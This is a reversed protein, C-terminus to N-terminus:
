GPRAPPACPHAATWPTGSRTPLASAKSPWPPAGRQPKGAVLNADTQTLGVRSCRRQELTRQLSGRRLSQLVRGPCRSEDEFATRGQRITSRWNSGCRRRNSRVLRSRRYRREPIRHRRKRFCVAVDTTAAKVIRETEVSPAIRSRNPSGPSDAFPTSMAPTSSTPRPGKAPGTTAPATTRSGTRRILPRLSELSSPACSRSSNAASIRSRAM